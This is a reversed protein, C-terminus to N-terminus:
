KVESKEGERGGRADYVARKIGEEGNKKMKEKEVEQVKIGERGGEGEMM